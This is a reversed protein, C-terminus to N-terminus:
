RLHKLLERDESNIHDLAIYAVLRFLSCSSLPFFLLRIAYQLPNRSLRLLRVPGNVQGGSMCGYDKEEGRTEWERGRRREKKKLYYWGTAHTRLLHASFRNCRVCKSAAHVHHHVKRWIHLDYSVRARQILTEGRKPAPNVIDSILCILVPSVLADHIVTIQTGGSMEDWKAHGSTKKYKDSM